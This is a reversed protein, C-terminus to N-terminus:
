NDGGDEYRVTAESADWKSGIHVCNWDWWYSAGHRTRLQEKLTAATVPGFTNLLHQLAALREEPTDGDEEELTDDESDLPRLACAPLAGHTCFAEIYGDYASDGGNDIKFVDAAQLDMPYELLARFQFCGGVAAAKGAFARLDAPRGSVRLTNCCWDTM